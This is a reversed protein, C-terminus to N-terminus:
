CGHAHAGMCQGRPPTCTIPDCKKLAGLMTFPYVDAFLGENEPKNIYISPKEDKLLHEELEMFKHHINEKM